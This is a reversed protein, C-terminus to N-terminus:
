TQNTLSKNEQRHLTTNEQGNGAWEMLKCEKNNIINTDFKLDNIMDDQLSPFLHTYTDILIRVSAHGSREQIAKINKGKSILYSIHYHRLSKFNIRDDYKLKRVIKKFTKSVYSRTLQKGDQFTCFYDNQYYLNGFKVKNQLKKIYYKKIEVETGPLFKIRRKSSKTKTKDNRKLRDQYANTVNFCNNEFDVSNIKLAMIESVRMGTTAAIYIAIFADYKRSYELIKKLQWEEPIVIDTDDARPTKVNEAPNNDLYGWMIAHNLSLKILKHIDKVRTGSLYELKESSMEQLTDADLEHLLTNGFAPIVHLNIIGAYNERTREGISVCHREFWLEMYNEITIEKINNKSKSEEVEKNKHWEIVANEADKKKEFGKLLIREKNYYFRVSWSKKNKIYQL